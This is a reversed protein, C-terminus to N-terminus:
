KVKLNPPEVGNKEIEKEFAKSVKTFLISFPLADKGKVSTNELTQMLMSLETITLEVKM